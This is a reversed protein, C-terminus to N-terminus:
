GGMLGQLYQNMFLKPFQRPTRQKETNGVLSMKMIEDLSPAGSDPLPIPKSWDKHAAPNEKKIAAALKEWSTLEKPAPLPDEPNLSHPADIGTENPNKNKLGTRGSLFGFPDYFDNM